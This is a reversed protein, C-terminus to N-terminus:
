RRDLALVCRKHMRWRWNIPNKFAGTELTPGWISALFWPHTTDVLSNTM